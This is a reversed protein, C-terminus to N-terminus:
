EFDAYFVGDGVVVCRTGNFAVGYASMSIPQEQWGFEDWSTLSADGTVLLFDSTGSAANFSESKGTTIGSWTSGNLSRRVTGNDGAAYIRGRAATVSRLSSTTGSTRATWTLGDTSTVITGSLGAAVVITGTWTVARLSNATTSSAPSWTSGDTSTRVIGSDGVAVFRQGTWTVARLHATTGSTQNTWTAGTSSRLITGANGVAIVVSGNSAVGNLNQSSTASRNFWGVGDSSTVITGLDGVAVFNDSHWTVARLYEGIELVSPSKWEPTPGENDNDEITVKLNRQQRRFYGDITDVVARIYIERDPGPLIDEQTKAGFVYPTLLGEGTYDIHVPEISLQESLMEDGSVNFLLRPLSISGSYEFFLTPMFMQGEKATVEFDSFFFYPDIQPGPRFDVSASRSWTVGRLNRIAVQYTGSELALGRLRLSASRKNRLLVGDKYWQFSHAGSTTVKLVYPGGNKSSLDKPQRMILPPNPTVSGDDNLITVTGSDRQIEVEGSTTVKVTFSEDSEKRRDNIIPVFIETYRSGAPLEWTSLPTKYDVDLTASDPIAAIQLSLPAPLPRTLQVPVWAGKRSELVKTDGVSLLPPGAAEGTDPEIASKVAHFILKENYPFISEIASASRVGPPIRHVNDIKAVSSSFFPSSVPVNPDLSPQPRYGLVTNGQTLDYFFREVSSFSHNWRDRLWCQEPSPSPTSLEWPGLHFTSNRGRIRATLTAQPSFSQITEALGSQGLRFDIPSLQPNGTLQGRQDLEQLVNCQVTFRLEFANHFVQLAPRPDTDSATSYAQLSFNYAVQLGTQDPTRRVSALHLPTIAIRAMRLGKTPDELSQGLQTKLNDDLIIEENPTLEYWSKGFADEFAPAKNPRITTAQYVVCALIEPAINSPTIIQVAWPRIKVAPSILRLTLGDQIVTFNAKDAVTAGRSNVTLNPVVDQAQLSLALFLFLVLKM